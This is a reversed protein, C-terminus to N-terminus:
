LDYSELQKLFHPSLELGSALVKHLGQKFSIKEVGILFGLTMVAGIELASAHIFVKGADKIANKIFRNSLRFYKKADEENNYHLDINL